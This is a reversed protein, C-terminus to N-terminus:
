LFIHTMQEIPLNKERRDMISKHGWKKKNKRNGM